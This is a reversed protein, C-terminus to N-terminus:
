DGELRTIAVVEPLRTLVASHGLMWAKILEQGNESVRYMTEGVRATKVGVTVDSTRLVRKLTTAFLCTSLISSWDASQADEPTITVEIRKLESFDM